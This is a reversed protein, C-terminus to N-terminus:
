NPGAIVPVSEEIPRREGGPQRMVAMNQGTCDFINNRAIRMLHSVMHFPSESPVRMTQGDLEFDVLRQVNTAGLVNSGHANRRVIGLAPLNHHAVCVFPFVGHRTDTAPDTIM